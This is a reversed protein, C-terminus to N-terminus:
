PETAPVLVLVTTPKTAPKTTSMIDDIDYDPEPELPPPLHVGPHQHIYSRMITDIDNIGDDTYQRLLYLRKARKLTEAEIAAARAEVAEARSAARAEVAEADKHAYHVSVVTNVVIGTLLVAAAFLPANLIRSAKGDM